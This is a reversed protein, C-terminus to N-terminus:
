KLVFLQDDDVDFFGLHAGSDIWGHAYNLAGFATVYDKKAKYFYNADDFYRQAM